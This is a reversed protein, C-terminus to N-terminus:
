FLLMDRSRHHIASGDDLYDGCETAVFDLHSKAVSERHLWLGKVAFTLYIM